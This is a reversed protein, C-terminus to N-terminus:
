GLQRSRIGERDQRTVSKTIPHVFLPQPCSTIMTRLTNESSVSRITEPGRVTESLDTLTRRLQNVGEQDFYGVPVRSFSCGRSRTTQAVIPSPSAVAQANEPAPPLSSVSQNHRTIEELDPM